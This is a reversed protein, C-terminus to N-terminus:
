RRGPGTGGRGRGLPVSEGRSLSVVVKHLRSVFVQCRPSTLPSSVQERPQGPSSSPLPATPLPAERREVRKGERKGCEGLVPAM